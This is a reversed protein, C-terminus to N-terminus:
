PRDAATVRELERLFRLADEQTAGCFEETAQYSICVAPRGAKGYMRCRNHETLQGCRVGAPKGDAM